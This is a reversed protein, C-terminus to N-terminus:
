PLPLKDPIVATDEYAAGLDGGNEGEPGQDDAQRQAKQEAHESM